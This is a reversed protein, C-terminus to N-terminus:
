KSILLTAVFLLVLLLACVFGVWMAQRYLGSPPGFDQNTSKPIADLSMASKQQEQYANQKPLRTPPMQQLITGIPVAPQNVDLSGIKEHRRELKTENPVEQSLITPQRELANAAVVSEDFFFTQPEEKAPEIEQQEPEPLPLEEKSWEPRPMEM